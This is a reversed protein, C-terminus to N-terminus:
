TVSAATSSMEFASLRTPASASATGYNFPMLLCHELPNDFYFRPMPNLGAHDTRLARGRLCSYVNTANVSLFDAQNFYQHEGM